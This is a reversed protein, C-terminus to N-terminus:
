IVFSPTVGGPRWGCTKCLEGSSIQQRRKAETSASWACSCLLVQNQLLALLTCRKGFSAWQWLETFTSPTTSGQQFLGPGMTTCSNSIQTPLHELCVWYKEQHANITLVHCRNYIMAMNQQEDRAQVCAVCM